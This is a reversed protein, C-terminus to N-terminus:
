KKLKELIVRLQVITEKDKPRGSEKKAKILSNIDLVRCRRGFLEINITHNLLDAFSGLGKVDGLLDVSGVDTVLYLNKFQSLRELSEKLPKKNQRHVANCSKLADLLRTLNEKDFSICMDLDQTLLSVGHVVAAFGGILVFDVKSDVLLKIIKEFNQM